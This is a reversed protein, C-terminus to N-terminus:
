TANHMWGQIKLLIRKWLSQKLTKEQHEWFFLERPTKNQTILDVLDGQFYLRNHLQREQIQKPFLLAQSTPFIKRLDVPYKIGKRIRKQESFLETQDYFIGKEYHVFFALHSRLFKEAPRLQRQNFFRDDLIWVIQYGLAGYEQIRSSAEKESIQSCQVEFVIKHKEWVLDGIRHIAPFPKELVSEQLPLLEQIKKQIDLHKESKSYLRCSPNKSLHYFHPFRLGSRRLRVPSACDACQYTKKKLADWADILLLNEDKAFLAM